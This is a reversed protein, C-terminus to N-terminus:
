TAVAKLFWRVRNLALPWAPCVSPLSCPLGFPSGMVLENANNCGNSANGVFRTRTAMKQRQAWGGSSLGRPDILKAVRDENKSGLLLHKAVAKLLMKDGKVNGLIAAFSRKIDSNTQSHLDNLM